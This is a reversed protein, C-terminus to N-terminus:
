RIIVKHGYIIYVGAPLTEKLDDVSEYEANKIKQRNFNYVDLRQTDIMEEVGRISCSSGSEEISTVFSAKKSDRSYYIEYEM